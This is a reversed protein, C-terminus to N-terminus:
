PCESKNEGQRLPAKPGKSVGRTGVRGFRGPWCAFSDRKLEVLTTNPGFRLVPGVPARRERPSPLACIVRDRLKPVPFFPRVGHVKPRRPQSGCRAYSTHGGFAAYVVPHDGDWEVDPNGWRYVRGENDHRAMYLYRPSYTISRPGRSQGLLVSVHEWDGEHYNVNHRTAKAPYVGLEGLKGRHFEFPLYNLPYFFWYQINVLGSEPLKEDSKEVNDKLDPVRGSFYVYFQATKYPHAAVNTIWTAPSEPIKLTQMVAEFQGQANTPSGPYILYDGGAATASLDGVTPPCLNGVHRCTKKGGVELSLVTKLSVPWFRDARAVVLIPQYDHALKAITPDATEDITPEGGAARTLPNPATAPDIAAPIAAPPVPKAAGDDQVAVGVGTLGALGVGAIVWGRSLLSGLLNTSM